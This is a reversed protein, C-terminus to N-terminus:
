FRFGVTALVKLYRNKFEAVNSGGPDDYLNYKENQLVYATGLDIFFNKDRIGFGTSISMNRSNENLEGREYPSPFYAFGGRFSIKDFRIEGGTRLNLIDRFTGTIENNEDYFNYGEYGERLRMSAFNIYEAEFGILGVKGVQFGLSGTSKFPTILKYNSVLVGLESGDFDTPYSTYSGSSFESNLTTYFEDEISYWTPTQMTVGIRIFEVPRAILGLRFNVGTGSATLEQSFTFNNFDSLNESDYEYHDNIESYNIRVIGMGAGLYIKHNYNLGFAFDWEGLSGKTTLTRRQSVPLLVPTDYEYGSNSITDIIHGEYALWEWYGDLDDPHTQYANDMFYDALSSYPNTGSIIVNSNFDKLKNYSVGFSVGVLGSSKNQYASVFGINDLSIKNIFDEANGPYFINDKKFSYDAKFSSYNYGPTFAIESKRYVGLGAPNTYTSSLDGGFVGMSGGMSLNRASGTPLFQSYRLADVYSQASITIAIVIGTASLFIRKM